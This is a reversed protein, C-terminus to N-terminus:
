SCLVDNRGAVECRTEQSTLLSLLKRREESRLLRREAGRAKTRGKTGKKSAVEEGAEAADERRSDSAAIAPSRRGCAADAPMSDLRDQSTAQTSWTVARCSSHSACCGLVPSLACVDALTTCRTENLLM